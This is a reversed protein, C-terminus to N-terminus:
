QGQLNDTTVATSCSSGHPKAFQNSDTGPRDHEPHPDHGRHTASLCGVDTFRCRPLLSWRALRSVTRQHFGSELKFSTDSTYVIGAAVDTDAKIRPHIHDVM